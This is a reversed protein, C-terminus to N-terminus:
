EKKVNIINEYMSFFPIRFGYTKVEYKKDRELMGQVNSSGFKLELPSDTNEFVRVSDDDLKAFVLYKCKPEEDKKYYTKVEKDSVSISYINRNLHPGVKYVAYGFIVLGILEALDM